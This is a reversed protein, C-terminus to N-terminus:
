KTGPKDPRFRSNVRRESENGSRLGRKQSLQEKNNSKLAFSYSYSPIRPGIGAHM